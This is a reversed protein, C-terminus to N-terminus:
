PREHSSSEASGFAAPADLFDATADLLAAAADLSAALEIPQEPDEEWGDSLTEVDPAAKEKKKKKMCPYM